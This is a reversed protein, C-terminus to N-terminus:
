AEPQPISCDIRELGLRSVFKEGADQLAIFWGLEVIEPITYNDMLDDFDHEYHFFDDAFRLAAREAESFRSDTEYDELAQVKEDTLGLEQAIKSGVSLCYACEHLQALRIRVLEKTCHDVIGESFTTDWDHFFARAIEPRHGFVRLSGNGPTGREEAQELIPELEALKEPDSTPPIATM